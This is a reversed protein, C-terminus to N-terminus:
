SVAFVEDLKKLSQLLRKRVAAVQLEAAAPDPLVDRLKLLANTGRVRLLEDLVRPPKGVEARLHGRVPSIDDPFTVPYQIFLGADTEKAQCSNDNEPCDTFLLSM